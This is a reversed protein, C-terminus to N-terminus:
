VTTLRSSLRGNIKDKGNSKTFLAKKEKLGGGGEEPTKPPTTAGHHLGSVRCGSCDPPRLEFGM